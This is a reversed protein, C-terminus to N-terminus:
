WENINELFLFQNINRKKEDIDTIKDIEELTKKLDTSASSLKLHGIANVAYPRLKMDADKNKVMDVLYKTIAPKKVGAKGFYILALSFTTGSAIIRWTISKAIHRVRSDM